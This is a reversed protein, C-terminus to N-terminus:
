LRSGRVKGRGVANRGRSKLEAVGKKLEDLSSMVESKFSASEEQQYRIHWFLQEILNCITEYDEEDLEPIEDDDCCWGVYWKWHEDLEDDSLYRRSMPILHLGAPDSM